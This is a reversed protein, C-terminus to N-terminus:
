IKISKVVAVSVGYIAMLSWNFLAVAACFEISANIPFAMDICRVALAFSSDGTGALANAVNGINALTWGKGGFLEGLRTNLLGIALACEIHITGIIAGAVGVRKLLSLATNTGPASNGMVTIATEDVTDVQPALSLAFQVRELKEQCYRCFIYAMGWLFAERMILLATQLWPLAQFPRLEWTGGPLGSNITGFSISASPNAGSGAAGPIATRSVDDPIADLLQGSGTGAMAEFKSQADAFKQDAWGKQGAETSFTTQETRIQATREDEELRRNADNDRIEKLTKNLKDVGEAFTKQTLGEGSNGASVSDWVEKTADPQPTTNPGSPKASGGSPPDQNEPIKTPTITAVDKEVESQGDRIWITGDTSVGSSVARVTVPSETPVEITQVVLAGAPILRTAVVGGDQYVRFETALTSAKNDFTVTVKNKLLDRVTGSKVAFNSLSYGNGAPSWVQIEYPGTTNGTVVFAGTESNGAIGVGGSVVSFLYGNMGGSAQGSISKTREINTEDLAITVTQPIDEQTASGSVVHPWECLGNGEHFTVRVAWAGSQSPSFSFDGSTTNTASITGAGSIVEISKVANHLGGAAFAQVGGVPIAPSLPTYVPDQPDCSTLKLLGQGTNGGYSSLFLTAYYPFAGPVTFYGTGTRTQTSTDGASFSLTSLSGSTNTYSGNPTSLNPSISRNADVGDSHGTLTWSVDFRHVGGNAQYGTVTM